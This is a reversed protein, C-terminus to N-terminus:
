LLLAQRLRGNRARAPHRGPCSKAPCLLLCEIFSLYPNLMCVGLAAGADCQCQVAWALSQQGLRPRVPLEARVGARAGILGLAVYDRLPPATGPLAQAITCEELTRM